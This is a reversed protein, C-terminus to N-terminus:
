FHATESSLSAVKYELDGIKKDKVSVLSTLSNINNQKLRLAEELQKIHASFNGGKRESIDRIQEQLEINETKLDDIRMNMLKINKDYEVQTRNFRDRLEGLKSNQKEKM